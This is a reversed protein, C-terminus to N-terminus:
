RETGMRKKAILIIGAGIVLIAGVIYFITTGIGGTSPLETGTNNVIELGEITANGANFTLEKEEDGLKYSGTWVSKDDAYSCGITVTIPGSLMNYGDPAKIETITYTGAALGKFVLKGDAGTVATATVHDITDVYEDVTKLAYKVSTNVYRDDDAGNPEQTTYTGDTLKYYTGNEADEVYQTGTIHVRNLREGSLTFEAGALDENAGNIKHLQLATAYTYVIVEETEGKRDDDGFEDGEGVHSPHNSYELKVSNPNGAEGIVAKDNLIASYRVEIDQGAKDKNKEYFEVFTIVITTSGDQNNTKTITYDTGRVLTDNGVKIVFGTENEDILTLGASMTDTIVFKYREYGAMSPVKTKVVYPVRDGVSANNKDTLDKTDPDTDTEGDIKKDIPPADAKLTVELNTTTTDLIVQSVPKGNQDEIAYYGVELNSIVYNDGTKAGTVGVIGAAKAAAVAADAFAYKDTEENIKDVVQRAFDKEDGTLEYRTCYFSKMGDPVTYAVENTGVAKADLIKYAAFKSADTIPVTASPKITIQKDGAAKATMGPLAMALVMVVALMLSAFRKIRKM